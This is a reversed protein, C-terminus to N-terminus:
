NVSAKRGEKAQPLDTKKSTGAESPLEAVVNVTVPQVPEGPQEEPPYPPLEWDLELATLQQRLRRLDWLALMNDDTSAAVRTGDASLGLGTLNALGPTQMTALHRLTAPDRLEIRNRGQLLALLGGDRAFAILGFISRPDRPLRTKPEWSGVEWFCFERNVATVLWRGDPSFAAGLASDTGDLSLGRVLTRQRVDWIRAADDPRLVYYPRGVSVGWRGDRSLAVATLGQHTGLRRPGGSAALPMLAVSGDSAGLLLCDGAGSVSIRLPDGDGVAPRVATGPGVRLTRGEQHSAMPWQVLGDKGATLLRGDRPHFALPGGDGSPVRGALSATGADWLTV